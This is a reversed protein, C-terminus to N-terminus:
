QATRGKGVLGEDGRRGGALDRGVEDDGLRRDLLMQQPEILLEPDGLALVPPHPQGVLHDREAQDARQRRGLARLPRRLVVVARAGAGVPRGAHSCGGAAAALGALGAWSASIASSAATGSFVTCSGAARCASGTCRASTPWTASAGCRGWG